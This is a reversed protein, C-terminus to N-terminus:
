KIQWGGTGKRATRHSQHLYAAFDLASKKTDGTLVDTIHKEIM